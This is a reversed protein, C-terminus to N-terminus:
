TDNPLREDGPSYRATNTLQQVQVQLIGNQIRAPLHDMDRRAPGTIRVGSVAFSSDHCPCAFVNKDDQWALECGEHPCVASLVQNGPLVYVSHNTLSRSWGATEEIVLKKAIPKNGSIQNLAVVDMWDDSAPVAVPRLFRFAAATFSGLIAGIAALPAFLLFTRRSNEGREHTKDRVIM